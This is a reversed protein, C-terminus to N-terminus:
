ASNRVEEEPVVPVHSRHRIFHHLAADWDAAFREINFRQKAAYRAGAGLKRALDLDDLLDGMREILRDVDTDVYGSVGNEIATAMETTALGVIPMGLMMAECVALGLSTYRIPNFFFRYRSAFQPVETLDVPGIGGISEANLGILDLPIQKRVYEFVDLGLRRGRSQLNNIVVLGRPLEGTYQVGKPEVVGHDIFVAPTRNNDWMLKNFPTVHVLLMDPDDVIHKMGTPNERPPDHELYVKPLARQRPSLIEYQEKLYQERAQFLIGDLELNPVEEVPVVHVNDGWDFNPALEGYAGERDPDYPLYFHTRAKSLYYMYSGHVHWTLIKLPADAYYPKGNKNLEKNSVM